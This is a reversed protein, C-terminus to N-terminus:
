LGTCTLERRQFAKHIDDITAEVLHFKEDQHQPSPLLTKQDAASQPMDGVGRRSDVDEGPPVGPVSVTNKQEEQSLALDPVLFLSLLGIVGLSGVRRIRAPHLLHM